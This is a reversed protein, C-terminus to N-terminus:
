DQREPAAGTGVSDFTLGDGVSGINSVDMRDPSNLFAYDYRVKVVVENLDDATYDLDGFEVSTIFANKLTWQEIVDGANQQPPFAGDPSTGPVNTAAQVNGGGTIQKITVNGLANVAAQKTISQTATNEDTPLRYGSASVIQRLTEAADPNAADVITFSVENYEMRGPFYFKHNIFSHEATSITWSPKDVKKITWFPIGGVELIWRFKRKPEITHDSWFAM